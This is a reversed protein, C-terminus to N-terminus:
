CFHAYSYFALSTYHSEVDDETLIDNDYEPKQIKCGTLQVYSASAYDKYAM